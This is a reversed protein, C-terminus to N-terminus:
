RRDRGIRIDADSVDLRTNGAFVPKHGFFAYDGYYGGGVQNNTIRISHDIVAGGAFRGDIYVTYGGGILRNGEVTINSLGEFYNDLMIAATQTNENIITNRIIQVDRGGDVQIGDYHPSGNRNKLGHIYNERILSPGTVNIGNEAGHIENRLFTGHGDIASATIGSGDTESDMLVFGDAGHEVKLAFNEATSIIKVNSMTVNDADVIVQGRIELNRIVANDRVVHLTGAYPMLHTGPPIGAAGAMRTMDPRLAIVLLVTTASLGKRFWSV